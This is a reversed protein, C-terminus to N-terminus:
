VTLCREDEFYGVGVVSDEAVDPLDIYPTDAEIEEVGVDRLVAFPIAGDRVLEITTVPLVAHLLLIEESETTHKQELTEADGLIDVMHVFPVSGEHAYLTEKVIDFALVKGEVFSELEDTSRGDVGAVRRDRSTVVVEIFVEEALVKTMQGCAEADRPVVEDAEAALMWLAILLEGHTDKGEVGTLFGVTHAKEM